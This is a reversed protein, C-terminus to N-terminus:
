KYVVKLLDAKTIVGILEGKEEVLVFPFHQLLNAIVGQSTTPPLIPPSSEMIDGAKLSQTDGAILKDLLVTESIYGVVKKNKMVPMQSINYRKMKLITDKLTDTSKVSIIRQYMIDRACLETEKDLMSLTEFLKKANTYSPDIKKAEIKAILSQSVNARKALQSQTIGIKKRIKKLDTLEDM